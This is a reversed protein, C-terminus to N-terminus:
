EPAADSADPPAEGDERHRRGRGRSRRRKKPGEGPRLMSEREAHSASAFRHWWDPLEALAGDLEGREGRLM